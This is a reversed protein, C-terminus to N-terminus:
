GRNEKRKEEGARMLIAREGPTLNAIGERSVKALVEDVRADLEARAAEDRAKEAAAAAAERAARAACWRQWWGTKEQSNESAREVTADRLGDDFFGNRGRSFDAQAGGSAPNERSGRARAAFIGAFFRPLDSLFTGRSASEGAGGYNFLRNYYAYQEAYQRARMEQGGEFFLMFGILVTFMSHDYLGWAVILGAGVRSLPRMVRLGWEVGRWMIAVALVMRGGDLPFVPLLNFIGLLLNQWASVYLVGALVLMAPVADTFVGLSAGGYFAAFLAGSLAFSMLPGAGAIVLEALAGPIQGALRAQGGLAHLTIDEVRVGFRRAVLSHGMEHLLVFLPLLLIAGAYAYGYPLYQVFFLAVVLYLSYALRVEIGLLKGVRHSALLFDM